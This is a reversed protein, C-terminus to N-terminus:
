AINNQPTLIQAFIADIGTTFTDWDEWLQHANIELAVRNLDSQFAVNEQSELNLWQLAANIDNNKLLEKIDPLTNGSEIKNEASM